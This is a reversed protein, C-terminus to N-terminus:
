GLRGDACRVATLMFSVGEVRDDGRSAFLWRVSGVGSFCKSKERWVYMICGGLEDHWGSKYNQREKAQTLEPSVNEARENPSGRAAESKNVVDIEGGSLVVM